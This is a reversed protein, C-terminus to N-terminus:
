DLVHVLVNFLCSLQVNGQLNLHREIKESLFATLEFFMQVCKFVNLEIKFYILVAFLESFRRVNEAFMPVGM